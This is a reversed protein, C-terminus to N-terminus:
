FHKKLAVVVLDGGFNERVVASAEVGLIGVGSALGGDAQRLEAIEIGGRGLFDHGIGEGHEPLFQALFAIGIDLAQQAGGKRAEPLLGARASLVFGDGFEAVREFSYGLSPMSFRRGSIISSAM